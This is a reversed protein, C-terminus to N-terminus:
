STCIFVAPVKATLWVNNESLFFKFGQQHMKLAEIKLLVPKGYRKGVAEATDINDSLHVHNREGPKLGENMISEIFRSATGHYLQAPPILENLQLEVKISHGQNARIKNGDESIVFRKKDSSHVVEQLQELTLSEFENSANTKNILRNIETWGNSDLEIGIADPKHRLIFSLFKSIQANNKM